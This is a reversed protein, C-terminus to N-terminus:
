KQINLHNVSAINVEVRDTRPRLPTTQTGQEKSHGSSVQRHARQTHHRLQPGKLPERPQARFHHQQACRRGQEQKHCQHRQRWRPILENSNVCTSKM